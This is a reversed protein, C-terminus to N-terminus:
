APEPLAKIASSATQTGVGTGEAVRAAIVGFPVPDGRSSHWGAENTTAIAVVKQAATLGTHGLMAAQAFLQQELERVPAQRHRAMGISGHWRHRSRPRLAATEVHSLGM